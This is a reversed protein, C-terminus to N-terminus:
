LMALNRRGNVVPRPDDITARLVLQFGSASAPRFRRLCGWGFAAIEGVALRRPLLTGEALRRAIGDERVGHDEGPLWFAQAEAADACAVEGVAFEPTCDLGLVCMRYSAARNRNAAARVGQRAGPFPEHAFRLPARGHAQRGGSPLEFGHALGPVLWVLSSDIIVPVEPDRTLTAVFDRTIPGGHRSAFERDAAFLPTEGEM